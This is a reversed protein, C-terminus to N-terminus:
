ESWNEDDEAWAELVEARSLLLPALSAPLGTSGLTGDPRVDNGAARWNTAFTRVATRPHRPEEASCYDTPLHGCIAWWGIWGPAKLSQIAWISVYPAIHWAPWSAVGGHALGQEALYREVETRRELVWAEEDDDTFDDSM